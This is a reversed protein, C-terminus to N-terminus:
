CPAFDPDLGLAATMEKLSESEKESMVEVGFEMFGGEASARSVSAAISLLWKKFDASQETDLKSDLLERVQCLKDLMSSEQMDPQAADVQGPITYASDSLNHIDAVIESILGFVSGPIDQDDIATFLAKGEDLLGPINLDATMVVMGANFPAHVLMEWEASSFSGRNPEAM